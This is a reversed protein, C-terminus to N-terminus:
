NKYRRNFARITSELERSQNNLEELATNALKAGELSNGAQENISTIRRDIEDAVNRQQSIAAAVQIDRDAIGNFAQQIDNFRTMAELIQSRSAGISSENSDMRTVVRKITARIHELTQHIDETSAHASAALNRVEDAVVAFGRGAEGARAAEIAANLALLNTQESIAAIQNMVRDVEESAVSLKNVEKATESLESCVQQISTATNEINGYTTSCVVGSNDLHDSNASINHDIERISASMEHIATGILELDQEQQNLAQTNNSIQLTLKQMVQNIVNLTDSMRGLITQTQARYAYFALEPAATEDRRQTFIKQATTNNIIKLGLKNLKRVPALSSWTFAVALVPILTLWALSFQPLFYSGLGTSLPAIFALAMLKSHILSRSGISPNKGERIKKYTVETKHKRAESPCTRVSQYGVVRNDLYTPTVYADVWYYDGNKCRNKLVGFWPEEKKLDQWLENFILFPTDPHRVLNHSKGILEELTFGSVECFDPNAYTIIGKLDTTSVLRVDVDFKREQQTIHLNTKM